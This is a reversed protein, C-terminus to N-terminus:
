PPKRRDRLNKEPTGGPVSANGTALGRWALFEKIEGHM